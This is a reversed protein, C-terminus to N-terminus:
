QHMAFRELIDGKEQSSGKQLALWQQLEHM